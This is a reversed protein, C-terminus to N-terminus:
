KGTPICYFPIQSVHKNMIYCIFYRNYYTRYSSTSCFRMKFPIFTHNRVTGLLAGYDLWYKVGVQSLITTVLIASNIASQENMHKENSVDSIRM